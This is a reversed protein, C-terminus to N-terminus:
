VDPLHYSNASAGENEEMQVRVRWCVLETENEDGFVALSPFGGDGLVRFCRHKSSQGFHENCM